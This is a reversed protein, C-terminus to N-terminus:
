AACASRRRPSARMRQPTLSEEIADASRLAQHGGRGWRCLRRDADIRVERVPAFARECVVRAVAERARELFQWGLVEVVRAARLQEVADGLKGLVVRRARLARDELARRALERSQRARALEDLEARARRR